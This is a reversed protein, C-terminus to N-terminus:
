PNRPLPPLEVLVDPEALYLALKAAAGRDLELLRAYDQLQALYANRATGVYAMVADRPLPHATTKYDIIWLSGDEDEFCRDIVAAVWEGDLYGSLAYEARAWARPKLIWRGHPSALTRSVLELVRAVATDVEPDPLGLRRFGAALAPAHHPAQAQWASIGTEAIRQLAQHYLTGVLRAYLDTAEADERGAQRASLLSESPRLTRRERPIYLGTEPPLCFDAALRPARPVQPMATAAADPPLSTGLAQFSTSFCASWLAQAFSRAPPVFKDDQGKELTAYLHLSRRARTAAVYLLRLGENDVIAGHLAHAYEFLRAALSKPDWHEPPKPVLLPGYLTPLFYLLPRSANRPKRGCGVLLVHDFELGKAKHITLIKVRAPLPSAYLGAVAREFGRLDTFGTAPAHIRLLNLARRVDTLARADGCAPGGLQLWVREVREALPAHAFEPDPDDLVALLRSIRTRGEASLPLQAAERLRTPWPRDRRAASLAVLDAWALGVWPARLVIPWHLRDEPHWLARALALVDRVAPVAALADIDQCEYVIGRARLEALIEPLHTRARALIAISDGDPQALLHQVRDAVARAEAAPNACAHAATDAIGTDPGQQQMSVAPTYAVAGSFLNDRLPFCTHLTTNFWAVLAATSRFNVTLRVPKLQLAGLQHTAWLDMFLTVRANRFAYISQQPDGVLFLSHGDGPAWGATLQKLLDVQIQSTDQMEDVLLHRIRRDRALLADGYAGDPRLARLARVAIENFDTAARSAMTVQLHALLHRLLIRLDDRLEVLEAPFRVPPLKQLADAAAALQLDGARAQLLAKLRAQPPTQAAFGMSRTIGQASRLAGKATVVLAALRQHLAATETGPQPWGALDTAWALQEHHGSAARALDALEAADRAGLTTYFVQQADRHLAELVADDDADPDLIPEMWQDRRALLAALPPLLRDIRNDASRLWTEAAARLQPPASDGLADDFLDLVAQEYLAAPDDVVQAHGGLGSLLPLESAIRNNFGDITHAQLRNPDALLGWGRARDRGIAAQALRLVAADYENEPATSAAARQLLDIIRLRIEAAAKNTFTIAVVQEPEDVTALAALFRQVLLGTKGSGAPAVAIIHRTLDLASARADADAPKM